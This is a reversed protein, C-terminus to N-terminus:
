TPGGDASGPRTTEPTPDSPRGPEQSPNIWVAVAAGCASCNAEQTAWNCTVADSGCPCRSKSLNTGAIVPEHPPNVIGGHHFFLEPPPPPMATASMYHGVATYLKAIATAYNVALISKRRRQELEAVDAQWDAVIANLHWQRQYTALGGRM